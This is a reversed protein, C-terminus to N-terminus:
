ARINGGGEASPFAAATPAAAGGELKGKWTIVASLFSNIARELAAVDPFDDDHRKWLILKGADARISQTM